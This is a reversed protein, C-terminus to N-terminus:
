RLSNMNELKKGSNESLSLIAADLLEIRKRQMYVEMQLKANLINSKYTHELITKDTSSNQISSVVEDSMAQHNLYHLNDFYSVPMFIEESPTKVRVEHTPMRNEQAIAFSHNALNLAGVNNNYLAMFEQKNFNDIENLRPSSIGFPILLTSLYDRSIGEEVESYTYRTKFPSADNLEGNGSPNLFSNASLNAYPYPSATDCIGNEVDEESCYASQMTQQRELMTSRPNTTRSQEIMATNVTANSAVNQANKLNAGTTQTIIKEQDCKNQFYGWEPSEKQIGAVLEGDNYYNVPFKANEIYSQLEKKRQEFSLNNNNIEDLMEIRANTINNHTMEFNLSLKQMEASFSKAILDFHKNISDLIDEHSEQYKNKTDNINKMGAPLVKQAEIYNHCTSYYEPPIAVHIPIDRYQNAKSTFSIITFIISIFFLSLKM